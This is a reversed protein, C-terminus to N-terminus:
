YNSIKRGYKVEKMLVIKDETVQSTGTKCIRGQRVEELCDAFYYSYILPSALMGQKYKGTLLVFIRTWDKDYKSLTVTNSVRGRCRSDWILKSTKQKATCIIFRLCFYTM